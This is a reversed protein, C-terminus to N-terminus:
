LMERRLWRVDPAARSGSRRAAAGSAGCRAPGPGLTQRRAATHDNGPTGTDRCRCSGSEPPVRRGTPVRFYSRTGLSSSSSSSSSPPDLSQLSGVDSPQPGAPLQLVPGPRGADQNQVSPGPQGKLPEPESDRTKGTEPASPDEQQQDPNVGMLTMSGV